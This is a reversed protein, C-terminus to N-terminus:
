NIENKGGALKGKEIQRREARDFLIDKWADCESIIAYDYKRKSNRDRVKGLFTKSWETVVFSLVTLGGNKARKLVAARSAGVYDSVWQLPMLNGPEAKNLERLWHRYFTIPGYEVYWRSNKYLLEVGGNKMWEAPPSVFPFKDKNGM